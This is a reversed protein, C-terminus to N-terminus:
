NVKKHHNYTDQCFKASNMLEAKLNTFTTVHGLHWKDEKGPPQQSPFFPRSWDQPDSFQNLNYKQLFKEDRRGEQLKVEEEEALERSGRRDTKKV